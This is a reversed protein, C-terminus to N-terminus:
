VIMLSQLRFPKAAQFPKVAQNTCPKVAQNTYPKAAQCILSKLRLSFMSACVRQDLSREPEILLKADSLLRVIFSFLTQVKIAVLDFNRLLNNQKM